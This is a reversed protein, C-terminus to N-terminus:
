HRNPGIMTCTEVMGNQPVNVSCSPETEFLASYWMHSEWSKSPLMGATSNDEIWVFPSATCAVHSAAYVDSRRKATWFGSSPFITGAFQKDECQNLQNAACLICLVADLYCVYSAKMLSTQMPASVLSFKM